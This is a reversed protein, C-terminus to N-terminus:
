CTRLRLSLFSSCASECNSRTNHINFAFRVILCPFFSKQEFWLFLESSTLNWSPRSKRTVCKTKKEWNKERVTRIEKTFHVLVHQFNMKWIHQLPSTIDRLKRNVNAEKEIGRLPSPKWTSAIGTKIYFHHSRLWHSVPSYLSHSVFELITSKEPAIHNCSFKM